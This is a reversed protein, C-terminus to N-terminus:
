CRTEAVTNVVGRYKAETSSLSVIQQRKSSWSILNEDLYVCYGSTSRRMDPCGALDADSCLTLTDIKSKFVQLGHSKTGQIYHIIRKLANLYLQRPDHM